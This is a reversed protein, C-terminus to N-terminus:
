KQQSVPLPAKAAKWHSRVKWKASVKFLDSKLSKTRFRDVCMLTLSVNAMVPEPFIQSLMICPVAWLSPLHLKQKTAKCTYVYMDTFYDSRKFFTVQLTEVKASSHKTVTLEAEEWLKLKKPSLCAVLTIKKKKMWSKWFIVTFIM